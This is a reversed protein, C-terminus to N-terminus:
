KYNIPRLFSPSTENNTKCSLGSLRLVVKLIHQKTLCLAATVAAPITIFYSTSLISSIRNGALVFSTWVLQPNGGAELETRVTPVIGPLLAALAQLQYALKMWPGFLICHLQLEVGVYAEVAQRCVLKYKTEVRSM